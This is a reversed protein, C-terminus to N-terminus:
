SSGLKIVVCPDPPKVNYAKYIIVQSKKANFTIDYIKAYKECIHAMQHLAYVSPTLLKIDDAYDFAVAFVGGMYCGYESNTLETLLGDMYVCFLIPSIVRGQKVDNTATFTESFRDQWRFGLKKNTYINLLLRSYMPCFGIDLLLRFLKCYNVSDFAKSANLLLGYVNTGNHVYYSVTEQVM